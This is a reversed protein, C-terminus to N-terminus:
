PVNDTTRMRISGVHVSKYNEDFFKTIEPSLDQLAPDLNVLKPAISGRRLAALLKQKEEVSLILRINPDLLWYFYAHPRFVGVGEQGDMVTEWRSTNELVYRINVIQAHNSLGYFIAHIRKLPQISSIILLIALATSKLGFALHIVAWGAGMATLLAMYRLGIPAKPNVPLGWIVIAASIVAFLVNVSLFVGGNAPGREKLRRALFNIAGVMATAAYLATLPLFMLFYQRHPVAILFLGAFLGIGNLAIIYDGRRFGERSFM